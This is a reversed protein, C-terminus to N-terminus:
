SVRNRIAEFLQGLTTNRNMTSETVDFGYKRRLDIFLCEYEMADASWSCPHLSKYIDMIKDDPGFKLRKDSSFLFADVFLELFERISQKSADPFRRKWLRGTCPRSWFRQLLRKRKLEFPLNILIMMGVLIVVMLLEM